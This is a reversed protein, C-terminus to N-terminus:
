INTLYYSKQSKIIFFSGNLHITFGISFLLHNIM